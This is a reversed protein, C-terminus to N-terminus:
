PIRVVVIGAQKGAEDLGVASVTNAKPNGLTIRVAAVAGGAGGGGIGVGGGPPLGGPPLGGGGGAGGGGLGGGGPGGGQVPLPGVSAIGDPNPVLILDRTILDYVLFQSGTAGTKIGRTVLKRSAPFVDVLAMSAFGAPIPITSVQQNELDFLVLGADGAVRNQGAAVLLNLSPIEQLGQFGSVGAPLDLRFATASVGDFVFLADPVGRRSPDTNLGYVFNNVEGFTNAATDLQGTGPLPVATVSQDALDIQLFGIGTCPTRIAIDPTNGYAMALRRSLGLPVIQIAPQCATAYAADPFAIVKPDANDLTFAILGHKSNDPSRALAFFIRGDTDYLTPERVLIGPGVANAPRPPTPPMLPQWGDPFDKSSVVDRAQNLIVFKAKGPPDADEGIVLGIRAQPLPVPISLVRSLGDVNVTLAGGGAVGGGGGGGGVNIPDGIAGTLADIPLARAPPGPTVAVVGGPAAALNSAAAPLDVMLPSNLAPNLLVAKSSLASGPTAGAPPPGILSGLLNMEVPAVVPLNANASTLCDSVKTATKRNADFLMAPNCGQADRVGSGILFGGNVDSDTLLRLDPTGEPLPVYLAEPQRMGQFVTRNAGRLAGQAAVTLTVVDGPRATAPIDIVVDFEGARKSSLTAVVNTKMGGIYAAIAAVPRAPPDEPGAEGSEVPPNTVGLGTAALTLKQGSVTGAVGYGSDDATRIAPDEALVMIRGPRSRAAGRIVVVQATGLVADWPAQAVIRSPTVSFLPAPRGNIMVQVGGLTTPLPLGSATAGEPPGLNFGNIHLIGGRGVTAPAPLKSFGNVLGRQDLVPATPAQPLAASVALASLFVLRLPYM